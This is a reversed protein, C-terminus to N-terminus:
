LAAALAARDIKGNANHPLQESIVIKHPQMYDSLATKLFARVKQETLGSEKEIQCFLVIHKRKEQYLCCCSELGSLTLAVHEIEGLEIRHGMHKIQYDSRSAFVLRHAADYRAIDGTRYYRKEGEGLDLTVFSRATREADKYYGEALSKSCVYIEGAIDPATVIEGDAVLRVECNGLASGLPLSDKPDLPEHVRYFCVIGCMESSGYLNVFEVDPLAQLWKNLHKVPFVEGVFSVRKLYLPKIESFTNLQVVISLASPVWSIFNVRRENMYEVLRVPFSFLKTPLIEISAGCAVMLYIDKASADFYFPTQNGIVTTEDFGFEAIYAFIFDAMARHSKAIGKPTGTSGSTYILYLLGAEPTPLTAPEAPLQEFDIMICNEADHGAERPLLAGVTLAAGSGEIIKRRKEEPATPDLPLYCAGSYLVALFLAVTYVNREAMVCVPKRSPNKEAIVAAARRALERLKSFSLVTDPDAIATREPFRAATQEFLTIMQETM